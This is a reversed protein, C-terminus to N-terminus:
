IRTPGKGLGPALLGDGPPTVDRGPADTAARASAAAGAALHGPVAVDFGSGDNNIATAAPQIDTAGSNPTASRKRRWLVVGSALLLLACAGGAAIGAIAAPPLGPSPPPLTSAPPVPSPPPRPPADAACLACPQYSTLGASGMAPTVIESGCLASDLATLHNHLRGPLGVSYRPAPAKFARQLQHTASWAQAMSGGAAAIVVHYWHVTGPRRSVTCRELNAPSARSVTCDLQHAICQMVLGRAAPGPQAWWEHQHRVPVAHQMCRTIGDPWLLVGAVASCLGSRTQCPM